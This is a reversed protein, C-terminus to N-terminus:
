RLNLPLHILIMKVTYVITETGTIKDTHTDLNKLLADYIDLVDDHSVAKLNELFSKIQAVDFLDDKSLNSILDSLNVINRINKTKKSKTSDLFNGLTSEDALGNNGNDDGNGSNKLFDGLTKNLLASKSSGSTNNGNGGSSSSGSSNGGGKMSNLFSTIAYSASGIGTSNGGKNSSSNASNSIFNSLTSGLSSRASEGDGQSGSTQLQKRRKEAELQLESIASKEDSAVKM